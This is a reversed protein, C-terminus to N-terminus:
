RFNALSADECTKQAISVKQKAAVSRYENVPAQSCAGKKKHQSYALYLSSHRTAIFHVGLVM